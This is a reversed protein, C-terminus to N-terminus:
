CQVCSALHAVFMDIHAHKGGGNEMCQYAANEAMPLNAHANTELPRATQVIEVLLCERRQFWRAFGIHRLYTHVEYSHRIKSKIIEWFDHKHLGNRCLLGSLM